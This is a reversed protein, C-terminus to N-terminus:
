SYIYAENKSNVTLEVKCREVQFEVVPIGYCQYFYKPPYKNTFQKRSKGSQSYLNAEKLLFTKSLLLLEPFIRSSNQYSTPIRWFIEILSCNVM